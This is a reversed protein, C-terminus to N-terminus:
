KQLHRSITSEPQQPQGLAPDLDPRGSSSPESPRQSIGLLDAHSRWPERSGIQSVRGSQMWSEFNFGPQRHEHHLAKLWRGALKELADRNKNLLPNGPPRAALDTLTNFVAYANEGLESRYHNLVEDLHTHLAHWALQRALTAGEPLPNLGLLHRLMKRSQEWPMELARIAQIFKSFDEWLRAMSLPQAKLQMTGVAKRRHISHLSCVEEEFIVGNSCHMRMFGFDFRLARSGNFSNTVRLFPTYPDELRRESGLLNMVHSRHRLDICAFSLTRPGCAREVQWEAENLGPFAVSCVQRAMAIAEAHTVVQYDRGVIGLVQRTSRHLLAKRNRVPIHCTSQSEQVAATLDAAEVEFLLERLSLNQLM